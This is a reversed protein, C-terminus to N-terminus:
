ATFKVKRRRSFFWLAGGAALLLAATAALTQAVPGTVPLSPKNDGGGGGPVPTTSTTVTASPTVSPSTSTPPTTTPATTPVTTPVTTPPTTPPTTKVACKVVIPCPKFVCWAGGKGTWVAAKVDYKGNGLGIFTFKVTKGADVWEEQVQGGIEVRVKYGGKNPNTATVVVDATGNKDPVCCKYDIDPYKVCPKTGKDGKNTYRVAPADSEIARPKDGPKEGGKCWNVRECKDGTCDKDDGGRTLASPQTEVKTTSTDIRGSDGTTAGAPSGMLAFGATLAIAAGAFSALIRRLRRPQPASVRV